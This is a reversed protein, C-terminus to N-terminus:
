NMVDNVEPIITKSENLQKELVDKEAQKVMKLTASERIQKRSFHM